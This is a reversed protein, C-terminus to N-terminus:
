LRGKRLLVLVFATGGAFEILLSVYGVHLLHQLVFQCSVLTLVGLLVTVPLVHRHEHSGTLQYSLLAILFGFFTM